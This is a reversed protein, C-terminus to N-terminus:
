RDPMAGAALAAITSPPLALSYLLVDDIRGAFPEENGPNKNTGIYLPDPSPALGGEYRLSGVELGDQYLRVMIGDFTAAVHLWENVPAARDSRVQYPQSPQPPVFVHLRDGLFTLNYVEAVGSNLARSFVSAYRDGTLASRYVWAAITFRSLASLSPTLPVRVGAGRADGPIEIAAGRHGPVWLMMGELAGNNGNGSGDTATLRGTGDDLKWYGVLGTTLDAGPPAPGADQAAADAVGRFAPNRETCALAALAFAM